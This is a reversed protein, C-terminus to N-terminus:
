LLRLTLSVPNIVGVMRNHNCSRPASCYFFVPDTDNVRVRFVPPEEGETTPEFGSFFGPKGGVHNEYPECPYHFEARVVSHKGSLFRFAIVKVRTLIPSVTSRVTTDVDGIDAVTIEPTFMHDDKGKEITGVEVTHTSTPAALAMSVTPKSQNSTLWLSSHSMHTVSLTTTYALFLFTSFM